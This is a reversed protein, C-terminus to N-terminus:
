LSASIWKWAKVAIKPGAVVAAGLLGIAVAAAAIAAVVTTTDFTPTTQAFAMPAVAAGMLSVGVVRRVLGGARVLVDKM